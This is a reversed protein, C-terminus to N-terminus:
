NEPLSHRFGHQVLSSQKLFNKMGNKSNMTPFRMIDGNEEIGVPTTKRMSKSFAIVREHAEIRRDLLKERLKLRLDREKLIWTAIFSLTAGIVIGLLGFIASINNQILQSFTNM